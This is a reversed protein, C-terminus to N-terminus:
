FELKLREVPINCMGAESEVYVGFLDSDEEVGKCLEEYFSKVVLLM